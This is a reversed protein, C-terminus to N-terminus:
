SSTPATNISTKREMTSETAQWISVTTMTGTSVGVLLQTLKIKGAFHLGALLATLALVVITLVRTAEAM